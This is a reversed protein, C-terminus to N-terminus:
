LFWIPIFIFLVYTKSAFFVLYKEDFTTTSRKVSAKYETLGPHLDRSPSRSDQSLNKATKRLEELRIGPYNRLILSRGSGELDKEIWWESIVRIM